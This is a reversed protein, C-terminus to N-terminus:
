DGQPATISPPTDPDLLNICDDLSVEGGEGAAVCFHECSRSWVARRPEPYPSSATQPMPQLPPPQGPDPQQAVVGERNGEGVWRERQVGGM